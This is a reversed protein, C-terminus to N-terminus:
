SRRFHLTSGPRAQAISGIDREDVVAIVPYGGTTPHDALMVVPQGDPPVQIAGIVLGESPLERGARERHRTLAPGGLRVGVRSVETSVTWASGLLQDFAGDVFWDVRPGERLRAVRDRSAHPALEAVLDSGPDRGVRIEGGPEPFSPGLRALSDWSRSGLIPEVAFGGRVALYAYLEGDAPDIALLDGAALTRVAGTASDAVVVPASAELVLGGATEVVAADLANGVLRNVLDRAAADLAGSHPVGLAAYGPRGRDQFSTSIGARVVRIQNDETGGNSGTTTRGSKRSPHRGSRPASRFQVRTGPTIRSPPEARVDWLAADTHGLLHWGGPSPSPYVATYPGAIAVSGAPVSTRPTARRPLVLRRDLGSLYAFGPAFGCFDCRYAVGAHRAIVDAISLGSAEAVAELDEGDYVVDIVVSGGVDGDGESGAVDAGVSRLADAVADRLGSSRVVVLVTEAAPVAEVVDSWSMVVSALGASRVGGGPTVLLAHSGYPRVDHGANV